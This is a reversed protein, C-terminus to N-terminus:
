GNVMLREGNVTLGDVTLGDVGIDEAFIACDRCIVAMKVFFVFFRCFSLFVFRGGGCGSWGGAAAARLSVGEVFTGGVVTGGQGSADGDMLLVAFAGLLDNAPCLLPISTRM